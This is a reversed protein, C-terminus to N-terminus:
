PPERAAGVTLECVVASSPAIRATLRTSLEAADSTYCNLVDHSYLHQLRQVIAQEIADESLFNPM